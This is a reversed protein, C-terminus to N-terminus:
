AAVDVAGRGGHAPCRCDEVYISGPGLHNTVRDLATPDYDDLPNSSPKKGRQEARYEKM